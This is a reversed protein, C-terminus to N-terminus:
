GFLRKLLIENDNQILIILDEKNGSNIVRGAPNDIYGFTYFNCYEEFDKDFYKRPIILKDNINIKEKILFEINFNIVKGSKMNQLVYSNNIEKIVYMNDLM